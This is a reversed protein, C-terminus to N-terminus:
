DPEDDHQDPNLYIELLGEPLDVKLCKKEHDPRLLIDDNLPILVEVGQYNMAMLTQKQMDYFDAVTGLKGKTQDYIEYGIVDHFYFQYDDLKPLMDLPLYLSLKKLAEAAEISNIEEFKILVKEKNFRLNKIFFPILDDKKKEILVYEIDEYKSKDDVDFFAVVEGETGHTTTIHGLEFCDKKEM